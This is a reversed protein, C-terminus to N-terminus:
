QARVGVLVDHLALRGPHVVCGALVRHLPVCDAPPKGACVLPPTPAGGSLNCPHQVESSAGELVALQPACHARCCVFLSRGRLQAALALVKSVGVPFCPCPSLAQVGLCRSESVREFFLSVGTFLGVFNIAFCVISLGLAASLSRDASDVRSTSPSLELSAKM